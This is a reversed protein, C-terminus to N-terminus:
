FVDVGDPINLREKPPRGHSMSRLLAHNKQQFDPPGAAQRQRLSQEFEGNRADTDAKRKDDIQVRTGLAAEDVVKM